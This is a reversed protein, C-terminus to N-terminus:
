LRWRFETVSVPISSQWGLLLIHGGRDLSGWRLLYYFPFNILIRALLMSWVAQARLYEVCTGFARQYIYSGAIKAEEDAKRVEAMKQEGGVHRIFFKPLFRITAFFALGCVVGLGIANRESEWMEQILKSEQSYENNLKDSDNASDDLSSASGGSTAGKWAEQLVGSHEKLLETYLRRYKSSNKGERKAREKETYSAFDEAM